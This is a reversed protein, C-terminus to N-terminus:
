QTEVGIRRRGFDLEGQSFHRGTLLRAQVAGIVRDRGLDVLGPVNEAALFSSSATWRPRGAVSPTAHRMVAVLKVGSSSAAPSASNRRGQCKRLLTGSNVPRGPASRGSIQKAPRELTPLDLRM